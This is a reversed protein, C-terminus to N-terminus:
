ATRKYKWMYGGATKRQGQCVSYINGYNINLTTGAETITGWERIFNGDKDYQLVPRIHNKRGKLNLISLPNNSNEKPTAWRLNEVRNDARNTNIHDIEGKNEPNPIFAEAVLRHVRHLKMYNNKCLGVQHYGCKNTIPKLLREKKTHNYNLSKVRGQTSVQYLGEYGDIDKWIEEMYHLYVFNNQSKWIENYIM